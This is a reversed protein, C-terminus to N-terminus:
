VSSTFKCVNTMSWHLVMQRLLRQVFSKIRTMTKWFMLYNWKKGYYVHICIIYFDKPYTIQNPYTIQLCIKLLNQKNMNKRFNECYQQSADIIWIWCLFTFFIKKSLFELFWNVISITNPLCVKPRLNLKPYINSFLVCFMSVSFVFPKQYSVTLWFLINENIIFRWGFCVFFFFYFLFIFLYIM